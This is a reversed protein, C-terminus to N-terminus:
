LKLELTCLNPNYKNIEKACWQCYLLPTGANVWAPDALNTCVKRGCEPKEGRARAANQWVRREDYDHPKDMM